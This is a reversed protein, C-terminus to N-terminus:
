DDKKGRLAESFNKITENAENLNTRLKRNERTLELVKKKYRKNANTTRSM